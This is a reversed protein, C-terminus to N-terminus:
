APPKPDPSGDLVLNGATPSFSTLLRGAFDRVEITASLPAYIRWSEGLQQGDEGVVKWTVGAHLARSMLYGSPEGGHSSGNVGLLRKLRALM